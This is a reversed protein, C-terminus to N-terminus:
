TLYGPLSATETRQRGGGGREKVPLPDLHQAKLTQSLSLVIKNLRNKERPNGEQCSQLNREHSLTILSHNGQEESAPILQLLNPEEQRVNKGMFLCYTHNGEEAQPVCSPKKVTRRNTIQAWVVRRHPSGQATYSTLLLAPRQESSAPLMEWDCRGCTDGSIAPHTRPLLTAGLQSAIAKVFPTPFVCAQKSSSVTPRTHAAWLRLALCGSAEPLWAEGPHARRSAQGKEGAAGGSGRAQNGIERAEATERSRM